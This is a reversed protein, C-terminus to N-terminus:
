NLFPKRLKGVTQHIMNELPTKNPCMEFPSFGLGGSRKEVWLKEQKTPSVDVTLIVGAHCSESDTIKLTDPNAGAGQPGWDELFKDYTYAPCPSAVSCGWLAYAGPYDKKRIAEVFIRGRREESHNKLLYYGLSGFIVVLVLGIAGFKIINERREEGAGYQDLYGAM